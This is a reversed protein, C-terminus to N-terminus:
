PPALHFRFHKHFKEVQGWHYDNKQTCSRRKKGLLDTKLTVVPRSKLLSSHMLRHSCALTSNAMIGMNGAM